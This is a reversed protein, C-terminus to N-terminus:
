RAPPTTEPVVRMWGGPCSQVYPYYGQPNQCYYWYDSESRGREVYVPPSQAVVPPPAYYPPPGYYGPGWWGPGYVPPGIAVSGGIFVRTGGAAAASALAFIVILSIIGVASTRRNM